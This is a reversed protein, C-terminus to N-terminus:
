HIVRRSFIRDMAAKSVKDWYAPEKACREFFDAMIDASTDGHYQLALLHM